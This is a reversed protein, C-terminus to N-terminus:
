AHETEWGTGHAAAWTRAHVCPWAAAGRDRVAGCECGLYMPTLLLHTCGDATVPGYCRVEMRWEGRGNHWPVSVVRVEGCGEM